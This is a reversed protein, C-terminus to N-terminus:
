VNVTGHDHSHSKMLGSSKRGEWFAHIDTWPSLILCQKLDAAVLWPSSGLADARNPQVNTILV